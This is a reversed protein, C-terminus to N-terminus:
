QVMRQLPGPTLNEFVGCAIYNNPLGPMPSDVFNGRHLVISRGRLSPERDIHVGPIRVSYSVSERQGVYIGPILEGPATGSDPPAWVPGSSEGNPSSCNPVAHFALRYNGQQLNAADLTLTVGPGNDVVVVKGTAASGVGRLRAEMNGVQDAAAPSSPNPGACAGLLAAVAAGAALRLVPNMGGPRKLTRESM